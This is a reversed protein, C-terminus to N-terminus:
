PLKKKMFSNLYCSFPAPVLKTKNDQVLFLVQTIWSFKNALALWYEVFEWVWSLVSVKLM